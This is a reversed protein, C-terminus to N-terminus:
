CLRPLGRGGTQHCSAAGAGFSFSKGKAMKSMQGKMEKCARELEVVRSQMRQLNLRLLEKEDDEGGGRGGGLDVSRTARRTVRRRPTQSQSCTSPDPRREKAAAAGPGPESIHLKCQQSSLAQVAVGPPIRRNKALDKCAELTLKEYNLCRCLTTREELSLAPHSELYIDLARYVGDYCDRAADPLSEAVALFKSVKLGHDPSIEGLYKDLLRGVKRMRQSPADAEEQSAVFVRVLRMVLNVDYVGGDDGSVLLDDLTAQDLMLGMLRELKHRCERSLGVASVIRLVWFLGRCSFATGGVLAVGHVATDALGALAAGDREGECLALPRRTAARLYHLLFRTLILNKNEVGYCGLVRMAKEITPPSLSTMDDFWWERGACPRMSEPTKTISSSLRGFGVTDPSSSCSSSSRNTPTGVAAAAAATPTEPTATIKSFLASILRELLGSADAAAAFPECSRVAALVDGWTWYCLGNVFAEAQALLNCACVEETMELFVAACHLLPLNSPCLLVRGNNYCFRAVLEFGDAGGPFGALKISVAEKRGGKKKEQRVLTRLTGSFACMVSQHLHLTHHGNIHVKLDCLENM